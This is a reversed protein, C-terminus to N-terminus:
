RQPVLSVDLTADGGAPVVVAHETDPLKENWTRLRYRGPPVGRLEFRGDPAAVAFWRSPAVFITGNMSEHISCYLKVVGPHALAVSRSEGAPYLGLDFDNPKSYSFVNHYILDDNPMAVRAGAAVALFGPAFRADKQHVSPSDGGAPAPAGAPADALYVVVPGLDALQMGPLEFAVRGAVRGEAHAAASALCLALALIAGLRRAARM